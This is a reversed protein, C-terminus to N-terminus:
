SASDMLYFENSHDMVKPIIPDRWLRHIAQAVEASFIFTPTAEVRYDTIRDVNPQSSGDIL